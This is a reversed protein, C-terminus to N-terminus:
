ALRMADKLWPWDELTPALIEQGILGRLHGAIRGRLARDLGPRASLSLSRGFPAFPLPAVTVRDRFRRARHLALPPLIAWGAGEAVLALIAHYSDLEFLGPRATPPAPPSLRSLHAEIQRGMLLRASHRILPLDMGDSGQPRIALFPETLLPHSDRPEAAQPEPVPEGPLDAAVVLDLAGAELQDILRHSPGTELLFRCDPLDAALRTLLAPTVDAEFDEIMGLRLTRLGPKGALSLEARAEEAANLMTQAHRRFMRGEPTLRVPRSARDFLVTGLAGELASIQQSVTSPSVGLRRAAASLSGEAAAALFTEIGWLTVRGEGAGETM